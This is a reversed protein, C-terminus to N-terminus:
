AATAEAPENCGQKCKASHQKVYGRKVWKGCPAREHDAPESAEAAEAQTVGEPEAIPVGEVKGSEDVVAIQDAGIQQKALLALLAKIDNQEEAQKKLYEEEPEGNPGYLQKPKFEANPDFDFDIEVYTLTELKWPDRKANIYNAVNPVPEYRPDAGPPFVFSELYVNYNDEFERQDLLVGDEDLALDAREPLIESAMLTRGSRLKFPRLEFTKKDRVKVEVDDAFTKKFQPLRVTGREWIPTAGIMEWKDRQKRAISQVQTEM